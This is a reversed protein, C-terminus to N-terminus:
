RVNRIYETVNLKFKSFRIDILEYHQTFDNGLLQIRNVPSYKGYNTHHNEITFLPMNRLIRNSCKFNILGLLDSCDIHSNLLKYLFTLDCGTRYDELSDLNLLSGMEVMSSNQLNLKWACSKLFKNQVKELTYIHNLYYPSWVISSYSLISRVLTLYLVRYTSVSFDRSNRTIFGLIRFSKNSMNNIHPIFSLSCDFIVGLDKIENVRQLSDLNIHYDFKIPDRSKSFSIAFCKDKNLHLDNAVSWDYLSNLDEQVMLCDSLNSIKFYLKLDDAFLLFKCFKIIDSIDNIFLNFLLPGVHSGQPVGSTVPIAISVSGRINVFQVRGGLYSTVWLLLWEPFGYWRLKCILLTHNVTDFAKSFDTYISDVQYGSEFARVIYDHYLVLNTSTSKGQRFGHQQGILFNQCHWTLHKNLISEFLKPISSLMVVPRYNKINDRDGNKHVPTIYSDRWKDPFTQLTLSLNFLVKLPKSLSYVCRKLFYNPISDPGHSLKDKLNMISEFVESLDFQIFPINLSNNPPSESNNFPVNNNCYVSSFHEAFLNAIEESSEASKDNLHMVNPIGHSTNLSNVHNWFQKSDSRISEDITAMYSRYCQDTLTKCQMRLNSFLIYDTALQSQKFKLHAAKKSLVLNKLEPSFWRPFKSPKFTKKPVYLSIANFLVEYFKKSSSNIDSKDFLSEWDVSCLYDNLSVFDANRFDLYTTTYDVQHVSTCYNIVCTVSVHHYNNPLLTDVAQYVSLKQNDNISGFILDLFVGHQNPITNSQTFDLYSFSEALVKAPYNQPCAVSLGDDLSYAWTALPLNYDGFLYLPIGPRTNKINEVASCHAIYIDEASNPPIYVGGLMFSGAQFDVLVFLHEINLVETKVLKAKFHNRVLIVVGGGRLKTSTQPDRDRRFVQYDSNSLEGNSYGDNLWTEVLIIVDYDCQLIACRLQDLRTRVGGM